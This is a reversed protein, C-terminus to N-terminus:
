DITDKIYFMDHDKLYEIFEEAPLEGALEKITIDNPTVARHRFVLNKGLNRESFTESEFVRYEALLKRGRFLSTRPVFCNYEWGSGLGNKLNNWFEDFSISNEFTTEDTYRIDSRGLRYWDKRNEGSVELIFYKISKTKM